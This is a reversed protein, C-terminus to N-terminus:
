VRPWKGAARRVRRRALIGGLRGHRCAGVTRGPSRDTRQLVGVKSAPHPEPTVLIPGRTEGLIRDLAARVIVRGARGLVKSGFSLLVPKQAEAQLDLIARPVDGVLPRVRPRQGVVEEIEDARIALVREMDRLGAEADDTNAEDVVGSWNSGSM